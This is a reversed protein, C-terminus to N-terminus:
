APARTQALVIIGAFSIALGVVAGIAATQLPRPEVPEELLFAPSLLQHGAGEAVELDRLIALYRDTIARTVDLATTGSPDAYEIQMMASSRVLDVELNKEIEEIPRGFAAAIPALTTRSGVIAPQTALFRDATGGGGLTRVYFVIESRAAYMTERLAGGIYAGLGALVIPALALMAFRWVARGRGRSTAPQSGAPAIIQGPASWSRESGDASVRHQGTRERRSPGMSPAPQLSPAPLEGVAM